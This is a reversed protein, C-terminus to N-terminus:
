AKIEKKQIPNWFAVMETAVGDPTSLLLECNTTVFYREGPMRTRGRHPMKPPCEIVFEFDKGVRQRASAHAAM